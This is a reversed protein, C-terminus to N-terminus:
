NYLYPFKYSDTEQLWNEDSWITEKKEAIHFTYIFRSQDSVNKESKHVVQGHIVIASGKKVPAAVFKTSDYVDPPATFINGDNTPNRIMKRTIPNHQSGPIFWLCANDVTADELAIWVGVVKPPDNILFTGDQHPLVVGGIHAQKFIVMSQVVVPEFFDLGKIVKQILPHFTVKKFDDDVHHLGHGIKNVALLKDKTLTGDENFVGEEFFCRVKDQSTMFYEDNKQNETSFVSRPHTSIDLTEIYHKSRERLLDCEDSSLFDEIVAYGNTVFQDIVANIDVKDIFQAM